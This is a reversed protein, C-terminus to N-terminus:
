DEGCNASVMLGIKRQFFGSAWLLSAVHGLDCLWYHSELTGSGELPSAQPPLAFHGETGNRSEFSCRPAGRGVIQLLGPCARFSRKVKEQFGFQIPIVTSMKRQAGGEREGKGM